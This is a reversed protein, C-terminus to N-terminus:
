GIAKIIRQEDLIVDKMLLMHPFQKLKKNGKFANLIDLLSSARILSLNLVYDKETENIFDDSFEPAVLLTKVVHFDNRELLEKYAQIQRCVSSFKNYGSEKVTKCEIIIVEKDAVSLLIDVKDKKTNTVKRLQEDVVLGLDTFIKKTLEEFKNGIDAEKIRIGNEKLKSLNRFAIDVYNELEINKSDKYNELINLVENGRTSVDFKECFEKLESETFIELVDRPKINYDLLLNPKSVEEKQLEFESRIVSNTKKLVSNLDVLMTEYGDISIGVKEDKEIENFFNVLNDIKSDITTGKLHNISLGKEVINNIREKKRTLNTGEKHIDFKLINRIGIGENIIRRIKERKELKRSIGHKKSIQNVEPDKILRLIRKLYKDAVEKNRYKRLLRVFEDPVYITLTKKSYLVIGSSKLLDIIEDLQLTKLPLISYNLLKIEEQSLDFNHALVNLISKEDTTIKQDHNNEKDNNYAVDVCNKYVIFDRLRAEVETIDKGQIENKLSKLKSKIGRIEKEYLKGLWERSMICNGDRILIDILIDLQSVSQSLEAELYQYYENDILSFVKSFLHSDLNKLNFDSSLIKDVERYNKPRDSILKVIIKAFSTKEITNLKDLIKELKM